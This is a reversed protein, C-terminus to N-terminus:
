CIKDQKTWALGEVGWPYVWNITGLRTSGVGVPLADKASLVEFHHFWGGRDGFRSMTLRLSIYRLAFIHFTTKLERSVQDSILALTPSGQYSINVHALMSSIQFGMKVPHRIVQESVFHMILQFRGVVSNFSNEVVSQPTVSDFTQRPLQAQSLLPHTSPLISGM